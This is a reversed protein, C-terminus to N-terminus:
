DGARDLVDPSPEVPVVPVVPVSPEDDSEEDDDIGPPLPAPADPEIIVPIQGDPPMEVPNMLPLEGAPVHPYVQYAGDLPSLDTSASPNEVMVSPVFGVEGSDLEVRVYSGALSIVKMQTGRRLVKDADADGRPRTNYFATNDITASVFQGPSINPGFSGSEPLVNGGPPALPDFSGSSIPANMTECAVLSFALLGVGYKIVKMSSTM